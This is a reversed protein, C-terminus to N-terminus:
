TFVKSLFKHLVKIGSPTGFIQNIGSYKQVNGYTTKRIPGKWVSNLM